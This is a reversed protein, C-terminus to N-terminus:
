GETEWVQLQVGRKCGSRWIERQRNDKEGGMNSAPFSYPSTARQRRMWRSTLPSNTRDPANKKHFQSLSQTSQLGDGPPLQQVRKQTHRKKPIIGNMLGQCRQRRTRRKPASPRTKETNPEKTSSSSVKEIIRAWQRGVGDLTMIARRPPRALTHLNDATSPDKRRQCPNKTVLRRPSLRRPVGLTTSSGLPSEKELM